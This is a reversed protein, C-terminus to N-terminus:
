QLSWRARPPRETERVDNRSHRSRARKLLPAIDSMLGFHAAYRVDALTSLSWALVQGTADRVM